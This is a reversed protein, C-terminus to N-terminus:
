IKDDWLRFSIGHSNSPDSSHSRASHHYTPPLLFNDALWPLFNLEPLFLMLKHGDINWRSDTPYPSLWTLHEQTIFQEINHRLDGYIPYFGAFMIAIEIVDKLKGATSKSFEIEIKRGERVIFTLHHLNLENGPSWSMTTHQEKLILDFASTLSRNLKKIISNALEAPEMKSIDLYGTTLLIGPIKTSDFRVPLIYEKAEIFARAQASKLEHNTWLKRAYHESIFIVTYDVKDKYLESFYQYLDKGWLDIQEFEDYFVKIGRERLLEAVQSVYERDEGAFSLAVDYIRTKDSM